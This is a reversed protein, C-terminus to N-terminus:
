RKRKLLHRPQELVEKKKKGKRRGTSSNGFFSRMGKARGEKKGEERGGGEGKGEGKKKKVGRGKKRKLV